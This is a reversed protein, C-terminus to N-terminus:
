LIGKRLSTRVSKDPDRCIVSRSSALIFLFIVCKVTCTMYNNQRSLLVPINKLASCLYMPTNVCDGSSDM